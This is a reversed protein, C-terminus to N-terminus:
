SIEGAMVPDCTVGSTEPAGTLVSTKGSSVETKRKKRIKEIKQDLTTVSRQLCVSVSHKLVVWGAPPLLM